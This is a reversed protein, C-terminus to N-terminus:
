FKEQWALLKSPIPLLGPWKANVRGLAESSYYIGASGEVEVEYEGPTTPEAIMVMGYIKANGEMEFELERPAPPPASARGRVIVLGHFNFNGEIELEGDVILVGSGTITGDIKADGTIYTIRPNGDTGWADPISYHGASLTTHLKGLYLDAIQSVTLPLPTVVRVSPSSPTAGAGTVQSSHGPPSALSTIITSALAQATTAIASVPRGPGASSNVNTDNGTIAFANGEFETEYTTATGPLYMAGLGMRGIYAVVVKKTGNPGLATSTLLAQTNGATNIATVSYSFGPMTPYATSPVVQTSSSYPFTPGTPIVALAHQIGADAIQLAVTGTKFNSTMKLDLQNFFLSAGTLTLLITTISVVLVLAMGQSDKLLRKM